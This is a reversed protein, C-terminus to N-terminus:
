DACCAHHASRSADTQGQHPTSGCDSAPGYGAGTNDRYCRLPRLIPQHEGGQGREVVSMAVWGLDDTVSDPQVKAEVEAEAVNLIQEGLAADEDAM